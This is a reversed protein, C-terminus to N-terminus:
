EGVAVLDEKEVADPQGKKIEERMKLRLLKLYRWGNIKNLRPEIELLSAAVWRHIHGSDRWRDVKDTYQGVQSMISEICNTSTFSRGLETFLGLRHITLTEELGEMLSEAASMNVSTLENHLTMLAAKAERYTTKSYAKQLERKCLEAQDDNLYSIVNERKHWRCRQIFAYERFKDRIAKILGKSGDVIFLLGEDYKLGRTIMKDIMQSISRSNETNTQDIGIIVKRGDATVGMTIMINDKHYRKGDIFIAVFDYDDLRKTQLKTLAAATTKKFRRSLNSPSLGFVEPILESCEKYKHTSIGNLLKLLTQRDGRLPKQLKQYTELPLEENLYKDRLRPVRVPIKQDYLYVSGDQSGWRYAKKDDRKYRTGALMTVEKKLKEGVAELGLPILAQIFEVTLDLDEKDDNNNFLEMMEKVAKRKEVVKVKWKRKERAVSEM